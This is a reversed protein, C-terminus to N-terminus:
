LRSKSVKQFRSFDELPLQSPEESDENRLLLLTSKKLSPPIELRFDAVKNFFKYIKLAGDM